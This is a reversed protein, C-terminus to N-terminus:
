SKKSSHSIQDAYPQAFVHSGRSGFFSIMDNTFDPGVAGSVEPRALIRTGWNSVREPVDLPKVGLRVLVQIRSFVPAISIELMTLAGTTNDAVPEFKSLAAEFDTRTSRYSDATKASLMYFQDFILDDSQKIWARAKARELPDKPLIPEPTTEDLFENIVASEFLTESGLFLAPVRGTPVRELFWDPKNALDIKEIDHEIGKATMLARTRQVFPCVSFSVLRPAESYM